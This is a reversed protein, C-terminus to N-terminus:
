LSLLKKKFDELASDSLEEISTADYYVLAKTLRDETFDKESILQRIEDHVGMEPERADGMACAEKDEEAPPPDLLHEDPSITHAIPAANFKGTKTLYDRKLLETRSMPEGEIVRIEEQFYDEVEERPKIGKLADPFADRLTFGRARLKLMREPYQTWPGTKALLGAKRAMDLTFENVKPTMGRRKVTCSAGYQTGNQDFMPDEIIDEFDKHSMCLALMDDGWMAPRGNIVAICQMSQEPSIGIQYGMAWCIFLDQPKSQFSKPVLASSALKGALQMYHPALDKSFLSDDLRSMRMQNHQPAQETVLALEANSM